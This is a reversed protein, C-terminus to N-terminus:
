KSVRKRFIDILVLEVFKILRLQRKIRTLSFDQFLRWLWEFGINQIWKPARVVAGSAFDLAGGNGFIVKAHLRDFNREIWEEQRPNGLCVMLFDPKSRNICEVISDEEIDSFYGNQTGSIVCGPHAKVLMVAALDAVGPKGGLLFIRYKNKASLAAIEQTFDSGTVREPLKGGYLRAAWLIGMGDALNFKVSSLYYALFPYQRAVVLFEPNSFAIKIKNGAQISIILENLLDVMTFQHFFVGLIVEKKVRM